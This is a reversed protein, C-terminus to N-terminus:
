KTTEGFKRKLREYEERDLREQKTDREIKKKNAMSHGYSEFDFPIIESIGYIVVSKMYNENGEEWFNGFYPDYDDLFRKYFDNWADAYTEGNLEILRQGCGITYDCGDGQQKFYAFYKMM